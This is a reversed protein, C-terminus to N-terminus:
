RETGICRYGSLSGARQMNTPAIPEGKIPQLLDLMHWNQWGAVFKGGVIRMITIRTTQLNKNIAPIGLGKGSHKMTCSWRLCVVKGEAIADHVLVHINSFSGQRWPKGVKANSRMQRSCSAYGVAARNRVEEFWLKALEKNADPM